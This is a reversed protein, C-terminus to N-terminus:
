LEHTPPFECEDTYWLRGVTGTPLVAPVVSGYLFCKKSDIHAIIVDLSSQVHDM